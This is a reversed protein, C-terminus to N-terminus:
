AKRRKDAYFAASVPAARVIHLLSGFVPRLATEYFMELETISM